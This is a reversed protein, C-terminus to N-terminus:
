LSAGSKDSHFGLWRPKTFLASVIFTVLFIMYFSFWIAVQYRYLFNFAQCVFPPVCENGSLYYYNLGFDAFYNVAFIAIVLAVLLTICSTFLFQFRSSISKQLKLLLIVPIWLPSLFFLGWSGFILLIDLDM